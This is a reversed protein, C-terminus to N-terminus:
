PVVWRKAGLEMAAFLTSKPSPLSYAGGRSCLNRIHGAVPRGVLPACRPASMQSPPCTGSALYMHAHNGPIGSEADDSGAAAM